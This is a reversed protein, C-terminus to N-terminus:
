PEELDTEAGSSADHVSQVAFVRQRQQGRLEQDGLDLLTWSPDLLAAVAESLVLAYGSQKAFSELRSANNVADGIVTYDMRAASGINGSIVPGFSLAIVQHWPELGQERWGENLRELRRQIETAARLAAEAEQPNGRHLPAGFVALCSDGIFKDVSGGQAHIAGVLESFYQNLRDVVELSRGAQGMRHTYDTFGRIDTVLVVVESRQGGLLHDAEAPQNAIRAAIAPSLYRELSQRLRRRQWQLKVTAEASSLVGTVLSVTGLSFLRLGLAWQGAAAMGLLLWGVGILLCWGLRSLPREWRRCALGLGLCAGGLLASWLASHPLFLLPRRELRNALETAHIEVGPMGEQGAWPTHHLDQFVAATPGILVLRRQFLGSRCLKAAGDATLLSWIPVTPITRPPGYPDLLPTWGWAPRWAAAAPEGGAKLAAVALSPPTPNLGAARLRAGQLSPWERLTGDADPHGNLLGLGAPSLVRRLTAIPESLSLGAVAGRSELVQAGLAVRGPHRQLAQAFRRDDDPGHSSPTEFLLDIAVASAGCRLLREAIAGYRARPWPWSGLQRLQPDQSLDSNQAQQLSFDDIAVIVLRPPVARSGRREQSFQLWQLELRDWAAPAWWGSLSISAALGLLAAHRRLRQGAPGM